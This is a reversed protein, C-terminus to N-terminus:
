GIEAISYELVKLDSAKSSTSQKMTFSYIYM